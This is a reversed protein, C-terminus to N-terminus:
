IRIHLIAAAHLAEEPFDYGFMRVIMSQDVTSQCEIHYKRMPDGMIWFSSDTRKEKTDGDGGHLHHESASLVIEEEGTYNEGFIENIVPIILRTCDILLTKFADDYPTNDSNIKQPIRAAATGLSDYFFEMAEGMYRLLQNSFHFVVQLKMIGLFCFFVLRSM